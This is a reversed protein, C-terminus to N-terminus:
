KTLRWVNYLGAAFGLALGGLFFGPATGAWTDLAWGFLVGGLVGGVLEAGARLGQAKNQTDRTQTDDFPGSPSGGQVGRAADIKAQFDDLDGPM